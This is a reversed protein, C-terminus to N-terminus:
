IQSINELGLHTYLGISLVSHSKSKYMAYINKFEINNCGDTFIYTSLIPQFIFCQALSSM